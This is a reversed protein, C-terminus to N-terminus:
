LQRLFAQVETNFREPAEVCSVHGVGPLAVRRATPIPVQDRRTGPWSPIPPRCPKSRAAGPSLGMVSSGVWFSLRGAAALRPSPLGSGTSTSLGDDLSAMTQRQFTIAFHVKLRRM